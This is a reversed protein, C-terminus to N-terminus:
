AAFEETCHVRMADREEQEAVMQDALAPLDCFATIDRDDELVMTIGNGVLIMGHDATVKVIVTGEMYCSVFTGLAQKMAFNIGDNVSIALQLNRVNTTKIIM